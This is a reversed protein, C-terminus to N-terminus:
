RRTDERSSWFLVSCGVAPLVAMAISTSASHFGLGFAIASSIIPTIGVAFLLISGIRPQDWCWIALPISIAYAVLPIIPGKRDM